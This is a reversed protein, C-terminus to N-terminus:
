KAQRKMENIKARGVNFYHVLNRKSPCVYACTGCLICDMVGLKEAEDYKGHQINLQM